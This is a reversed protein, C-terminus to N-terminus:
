QKNKATMDSIIALPKVANSMVNIVVSCWAFHYNAVTIAHCVIAYRVLLFLVLKEM